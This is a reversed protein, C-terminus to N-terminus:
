GVALLRDNVLRYRRLCGTCVWDSALRLGCHCVWGTVRAPNGVVVRHNAVDHTVLSAAGVTAYEGITLGPLIVAGAGVTAGRRVVTRTLWNESRAYRGAAEPM